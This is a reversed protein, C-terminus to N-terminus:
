GGPFLCFGGPFLCFLRLDFFLRSFFRPCFINDLLKQDVGLFRFFAPDGEQLVSLHFGKMNLGNDPGLGLAVYIFSLDDRDFRVQLRGKDIDSRFLVTEQGEAVDMRLIIALIDRRVGM